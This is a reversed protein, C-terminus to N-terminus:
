IGESGISNSCHHLSTLSRLDRSPSRSNSARQSGIRPKVPSLVVTDNLQDVPLANEKDELDFGVLGQSLLDLKADMHADQLERDADRGSRWRRHELSLQKDMEQWCEDRVEIELQDMRAECAQWSLEANVRREREEILRLQALELEARLAAITEMAIDFDQQMTEPSARGCTGSRGLSAITSSVSPIRPVTIEKALASYRLIQSTGNFDGLPDATVIMIAKQHAHRGQNSLTNSFLLETLKCQRFPVLAPNLSSTNDAQMQMCQGLYM